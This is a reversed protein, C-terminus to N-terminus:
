QLAKLREEYGARKEAIRKKHFAREEKDGYMADVELLQADCNEIQRECSEISRELSGIDNGFDSKTMAM